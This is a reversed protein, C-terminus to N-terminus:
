SLLNIASQTLDIGDIVNKEFNEKPNDLLQPKKELLAELVPSNYYDLFINCTETVIKILYYANYVANLEENSLNDLRDLYTIYIDMFLSDKMFASNAYKENPSNPSVVMSKLINLNEEMEKSLITRLNRNKERKDMYDKGYSLLFGLIFTVIPLIITIIEITPNTESIIRNLEVPPEPTPIQIFM